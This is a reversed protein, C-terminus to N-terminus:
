LPDPALQRQLRPSFPYRNLASPPWLGALESRSGRENGVRRASIRERAGGSPGIRGDPARRGAIRKPTGVLDLTRRPLRRYGRLRGSQVRMLVDLRSFEQKSMSLVAV